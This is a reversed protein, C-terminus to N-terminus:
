SSPSIVLSPWNDRFWDSSPVLLVAATPWERRVKGFQTNSESHTYEELKSCDFIGMIPVIYPM